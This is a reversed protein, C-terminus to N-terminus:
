ERQCLQIVRKTVYVLWNLFFGGTPNVSNVRIQYPGLDRAMCKTIADAGSKSAGYALLELDRSAGKAMMSSVNVVAGKRKENVMHGTVVRSIIFIARM